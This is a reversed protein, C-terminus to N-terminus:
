PTSALLQTPPSLAREAMSVLALQAAPSHDLGDLTAAPALVVVGRGVRLREVLQPTASSIKPAPQFWVVTLGEKVRALVAAELRLEGEQAAQQPILLVLRGRFDNWKEPSTLEDVALGHAALVPRLTGTADAVGLPLDGALLKLADLISEPHAWVETVGLLKTAELWRM